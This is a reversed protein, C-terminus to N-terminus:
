CGGRSLAGAQFPETGQSMGTWDLGHGPPNDMGIRAELFYCPVLTVLGYIGATIFTIKALKM